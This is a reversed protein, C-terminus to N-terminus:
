APEPPASRPPAPDEGSHSGEGEVAITRLKHLESEIERNEKQVQRIRFQQKLSHTVLYVFTLLSGLLFAFFLAIVLPVDLFRGAPGFNIEGVKQDPNLVAVAIILFVVVLLLFAGVFRMM